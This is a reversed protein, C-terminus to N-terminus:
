TDSGSMATADSATPLAFHFTAGGGDNGTAWIRGGHSEIITRSISLGMGSGHPKTTFFADFMQGANEEPLGVGTDSVSIKVRDDDLASMVTLVGGTDNMAEIGNLMLNMLVQQLQVRDATIDPLNPALETRISVASRHAGDRLLVTMERVAENANVAERITPAKTYLARLRDIIDTARTGDEVIREIAETAEHVDPQERRLWRLSTQANILSATLPQKLEHSISAAMEGLMTVRDMHALESQLEDARKRDEIDTAVGCWKTVKGSHDRLPTARVQFWRYVGDSRRCRAEYDLPEITATATRWKDLVRPLDDPHIAQQWGDLLSQELPVGTYEVWRRNWFARRGDAETVFAVAPISEVMERFKKEEEQLHRVRFRHATWVLALLLIASVVRFWTTQFFHPQLTFHTAAGTENWVGNSNAAIVRFSYDGPAM